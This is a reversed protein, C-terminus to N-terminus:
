YNINKEGNENARKVTIIISIGTGINNEAWISGGHEEIIRKAISLGLGSGGKKTGRSLDARYFQDFIYRISKENVGPGNDELKFLIYSDVASLHFHLRKKEKDNYKLSNDTINTIVRKLHERDGMVEYTENKDINLNIEVNTGEVDFRLEEVFDSLYQDFKIPEFHFPLRQLDLKSFLFLQDIMRDLDRAKTYITQIYREMKQPSNAVGDRIGEVYGIISTIPTKLDHSINAILIKRNKEYALQLDISEKLRIRMEEFGQTLQGMEDQSETKIEVNLNGEKMLSAAKQLKKIPRIISRSVYYTLLGNTVVLIVILLIIITPFFSRVIEAFGSADQIFFLTGESYDSFFFDLQKISVFQNNAIREVPDVGRNTGFPQLDGSNLNKLSHPVYILNNEKRVVLRYGFESLKKNTEHLFSQDLFREPEVKTQRYYDIILQEKKSIAVNEEPPLYLDRMEKIDGRFLLVVLIAVILTFFIPIIIMAIYSLLLRLRISVPKM